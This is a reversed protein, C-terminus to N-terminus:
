ATARVAHLLNPPLHTWVGPLEQRQKQEGAASVFALMCAHMCAAAAAAAAAATSTSVELSTIGRKKLLGVTLTDAIRQWIYASLEEATSHVIPLCLCDSRPLLFEAGDECRLHISSGEQTIELVDSRMPIIVFKDLSDYLVSSSSSNSSNSSTTSRSSSSSNSSSSNNSNSSISNSNTVSLRSSHPQQLPLPLMQQKCIERVVRKIDTFNMVYGDTGLAGFLKAQVQYNHGHMRERYGRYAVFHACCFHSDSLAVQVGFSGEDAAAPPASSPRTSAPPGESESPPAGGRAVSGMDVSGVAAVVGPSYAEQCYSHVSSFTSRPSSPPSGETAAVSSSAIHQPQQQMPSIFFSSSSGQSPGGAAGAAAAAAAAAGAAGGLGGSPSSQGATSPSKAPPIFTVSARFPDLHSAQQQQQEQQQQQQQHEQQQQHLHLQQQHQQELRKRQQQPSSSQSSDSM